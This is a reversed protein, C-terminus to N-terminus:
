TRTLEAGHGPLQGLPNQGYRNVERQDDARRYYGEEQEGGDDYRTRPASPLTSAVAGVVPGAYPLSGRRGRPGM